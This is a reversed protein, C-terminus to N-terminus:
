AVFVTDVLKYFAKNNKTIMLQLALKVKNEPNKLSKLKKAFENLKSEKINNWQNTKEQPPLIEWADFLRNDTDNTTIYVHLFEDGKGTGDKVLLVLHFFNRLKASKPAKENISYIKKNKTDMRKIVAKPDTNLIDVVFGNFIFKKGINERPNELNRLLEVLNTAKTSNITNKVATVTQGDDKKPTSRTGKKKPQSPLAYSQLFSHRNVLDSSVNKKPSKKGSLDAEFHRHDYFYRPILLCSSYKTLKIIRNGKDKIYIEVCRLKIINNQLGTNPKTQMTLSYKNGQEDLFDLRKDKNDANTCKLLIDVDKADKERERYENWWNIYKLSNKFFFNDSWERLDSLRGQEYENLKRNKNAPFDKYCRADNKSGKIGDYILWNSFKVENGILEGKDAIKYNFRRLRVIDGVYKIRPAQDPKETYINIYVYKHFKLENIELNTKYNFSPDIVKLKTTWNSSNPSKYPESIDIIVAYLLYHPNTSPSEAISALTTENKLDTVKRPM